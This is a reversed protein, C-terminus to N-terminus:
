RVGGTTVLRLAFNVVAVAVLCYTPNLEYPVWEGIFALPILTANLWLTKSRSWHKM